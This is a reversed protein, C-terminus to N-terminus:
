NKIKITLKDKVEIRSARRPAATRARAVLEPAAIVLRLMIVAPVAISPHPSNTRWRRQAGCHPRQHGDHLVALIALKPVNDAEGLRRDGFQTAKAFTFGNRNLADVSPSCSFSPSDRTESPM